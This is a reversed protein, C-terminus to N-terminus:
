YYTETYQTRLHTELVNIGTAERIAHSKMSTSKNFIEFSTKKIIKPLLKTSYFKKLMNIINNIKFNNIHSNKSYFNLLDHIESSNIFAYELLFLDQIGMNLGLGALPHLTHAADGMLILRKNTHKDVIINKLPFSVPQSISKIKGILPLLDDSIRKKLSENDLNSIKKFSNNPLTWILNYYDKNLPLLGQIEDNNFRQFATDDSKDSKEINLCYATQNYDHIKRLFLGDSYLCNVTKDTNILLDFELKKNNNIQVNKYDSNITEIKLGDLIEISSNDNISKELEEFLNSENIIHGMRNLSVDSSEFNITSSSYTDLVSIKDFSNVSSSDLSRWINHKRLMYESLLNLAFSRSEKKEKKSNNNTSIIFIEKCYPLLVTAAMMGLVGKGVIVIKKFNM